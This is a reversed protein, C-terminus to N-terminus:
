GDIMARLLQQLQRIQEPNLRATAATGAPKAADLARDLV